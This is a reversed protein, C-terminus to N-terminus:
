NRRACARFYIVATDIDVAAENTTFNEDFFLVIRETDTRDEFKDPDADEFEDIDITGSSM